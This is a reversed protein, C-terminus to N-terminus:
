FDGTVWSPAQRALAGTVSREFSSLFAWGRMAPLFDERTSMFGHGGGSTVWSEFVVASSGYTTTEHKSFYGVDEVNTTAAAGAAAGLSSRWAAITDPGSLVRGRDPSNVYHVGGAVGFPMRQDGIVTPTTCGPTNCDPMDIDTGHFLALGFPVTAGALPRLPEPLDSVYAVFAAVRRLSPYKPKAMESAVRQTMMGGNSVGGVYVRAEDIKLAKDGLMVSIVHDIFGVDDRNPTATGFGPSPVRGDEWHRTDTTGPDAVGDPYVVVFPKTSMATKLPPACDAGGATQYVLGNEETTPLARCLPGNPRWSSGAAPARALATWPQTVLFRSASGNGGHLMLVLPATRSGDAIVKPVYVHFTRVITQSGFKEESTYKTVVGETAADPWNACAAPPLPCAEPASSVSKFATPTAADADRADTTSAGDLNAGDAGEGGDVVPTPGPPTAGDSGGCAVGLATVGALVSACLLSSLSARMPIMM